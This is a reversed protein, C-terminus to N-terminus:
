ETVDEEETEAEEVGSRSANAPGSESKDRRSGAYMAVSVVEGENGM